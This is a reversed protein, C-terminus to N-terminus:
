AEKIRKQLLEYASGSQIIEGAFAVGQELTDRLGYLYIAAGANFQVIQRKALSGKGQLVEKLIQVNETATGGKIEDLSFTALGVQEPTIRRKTIQGRRIEYLLSPGSISLEDLGDEGHVLLAQKKPDQAIWAAMLPMLSEDYVGILQYSAEVPSLLPGMLNFVTKFGLQKRLASVERLVPHCDQAFYFEINFDEDATPKFTIGLNELLDIGGCLSTMARNGHKAVKVGAAAAVFAATTSINFSGMADGGTGCNDLVECPPLPKKVQAKKIARIFGTLEELSPLTQAYHNLVVATKVDGLSNSLVADMLRSAEDATLPVGRLVKKYLQSLADSLSALLCDVGEVGSSELTKLLISGFIAIDCHGQLAELDSREELGFGVGVPIDLHNKLTELQEILVSDIKSKTGTVGLRPVFYLFGSGMGCMEKIREIPTNLTAIPIMEIRRDKCLHWFEPAQDHPADPVILGKVGIAAMKNVFNEQGYAIIPNYYTMVYIPVEMIQIQEEIFDIAKAITMGRKLAEQNAMQFLPGDAVPESYPLQLEIRDFGHLELKKIMKRNTELDPYGIVQHGMPKINM